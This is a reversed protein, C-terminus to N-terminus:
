TRLRNRAERDVFARVCAVPRIHLSRWTMFDMAHETSEDLCLGSKDSHYPRLCQSLAQVWSYRRM